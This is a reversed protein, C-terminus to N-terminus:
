RASGPAGLVWAGRRMAYIGMGHWERESGEVGSGCSFLRRPAARVTQRPLTWWRVRRAGRALIGSGGSVCVCVGKKSILIGSGGCRCQGRFVSVCVRTKQAMLPTRRVPLDIGRVESGAKKSILIGSGGSVSAFM